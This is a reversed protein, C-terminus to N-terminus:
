DLHMKLCAVLEASFSPLQEQQLLGQFYLDLNQKYADFGEVRTLSALRPECCVYLRDQQWREAELELAKTAQYITDSSVQLKLYRRLVRLPQLCNHRWDASVREFEELLESSVLMKQSALWSLALLVNVDAGCNDQLALLAAAVGKRQYLEISFVWLPQQTETQYKTSQEMTPHGIM